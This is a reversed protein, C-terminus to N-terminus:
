KLKIRELQGVEGILFGSESSLICGVKDLNEKHVIQDKINRIEISHFGRVVDQKHELTFTDTGHPYILTKLAFSEDEYELDYVQTGTLEITQLKIGNLDFYIKSNEPYTNNIGVIQAETSDTIPQFEVNVINLKHYWKRKGNQNYFSIGHQLDTYKADFFPDAYDYALFEPVGDNETDLIRIKADTTFRATDGKQFAQIDLTLKSDFAFNSNYKYVEINDTLFLNGNIFCAEKILRTKETKLVLETEFLNNSNVFEPKNVNIYSVSSISLILGFYIVVLWTWMKNLKPLSKFKLYDIGVGYLYLQLAGFHSFVIFYSSIPFAEQLLPQITSIPYLIKFPISEWGVILVGIGWGETDIIYITSILLLSLSLILQILPLLTKLDNKKRYERYILISPGITILIYPLLTTM